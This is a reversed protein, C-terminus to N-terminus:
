QFVLNGRDLCGHADYEPEFDNGYDVVVEVVSATGCVDPEIGPYSVAFAVQGAPQGQENIVALGFSGQIEMAAAAAEECTTIDPVGLAALYEEVSIWPLRAHFQVGNAQDNWELTGSIADKHDNCLFSLGITAEGLQGENDSLWVESLAVRGGGHVTQTCGALALAVAAMLLFVTLKKM